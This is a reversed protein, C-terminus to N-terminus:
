WTGTLQVGQRGGKKVVGIGLTRDNSTNMLLDVRVQGTSVVRGQALSTRASLGANPVISVNQTVPVTYTVGGAVKADLPCGLKSFGHLVLRSTMALYVQHQVPFGSQSNGSADERSACPDGPLTTATPLRTWLLSLRLPMVALWPALAGAPGTPEGFLPRLTLTTPVPIFVPPAWTVDASATTAAFPAALALVLLPIVRKMM